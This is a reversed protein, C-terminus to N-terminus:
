DGYPLCVFTILRFPNWTQSLFGAMFGGAVLVQLCPFIGSERMWGRSRITSFAM